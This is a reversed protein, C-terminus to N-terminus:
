GDDQDYFAVWDIRTRLLLANCIVGVCVFRDVERCHIHQVPSVSILILGGLMCARAEM